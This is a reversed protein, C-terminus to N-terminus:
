AYVLCDHNTKKTIFYADIQSLTFPHYLDGFFSVTGESIINEKGHYM